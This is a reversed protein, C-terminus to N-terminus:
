FYLQYIDHNLGATVYHRVYRTLALQSLIDNMASDPDADIVTIQWRFSSAYAMNDAFESSLYDRNYVICPYQMQVNPPPQFYVTFSSDLSELLGQLRVRAPTDPSFSPAPASASVVMKKLTVAVTNAV